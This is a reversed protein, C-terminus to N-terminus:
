SQRLYRLTEFKKTAKYIRAELSQLEAALVREGYAGAAFIDITNTTPEEPEPLLVRM